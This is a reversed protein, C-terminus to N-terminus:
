PLVDFADIGIGSMTVKGSPERVMVMSPVWGDTAFRHAAYQSHGQGILWAELEELSAFVPSTPTGESVTEYVQYHTPESTFDPRYSDRDPPNGDFDWYFPHKAKYEAASAHTGAEWALCDDLWERAAENYSRDYLPIYHGRDDEPHEWGAPVRRIERGM